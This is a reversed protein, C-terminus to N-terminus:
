ESMVCSTSKFGFNMHNIGPKTLFAIFEEEVDNQSPATGADRKARAPPLSSPIRKKSVWCKGRCRANRAKPWAPSLESFSAAAGLPAPSQNYSGGQFALLVIGSM